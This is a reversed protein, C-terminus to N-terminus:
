SIAACQKSIVIYWYNKHGAPQELAIKAREGFDKTLDMMQARTRYIMNWEGLLEYYGRHSEHESSINCIVLAGGPRLLEFLTKTFRGAIKDNLYDYIGFAYILDQEALTRQLSKSRILNILNEHFYEIHLNRRAEGPLNSVSARVHDLARKELDLCKFQIPRNIAIEASLEIIERAPGCAISLIRPVVEESADLVSRVIKEKLYNKRAINSGSVPINCTYNNILREFSSAGCYASDGHYDYIREMMMFDGAYGLPKHYVHHNFQVPEVLIPNLTKQLYLQYSRRRDEPLSLYADWIGIFIKDLDSFTSKKSKQIFEDQQSQTPNSADFADFRSKLTEILELAQRVLDVFDPDFQDPNEQFSSPPAKTPKM